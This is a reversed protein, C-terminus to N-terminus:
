EAVEEEEEVAPLYARAEKSYEVEPGSFYELVNRACKWDFSDGAGGPRTDRRTALRDLAQKILEEDTGEGWFFLDCDDAYEDASDNGADTALVQGKMVCNESKCYVRTTKTKM